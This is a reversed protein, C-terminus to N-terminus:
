ARPHTKNYVTRAQSTSIRTYIQTTSLSEHGLLSQIMRLDAGHDLLHTAFSHRFTHISVKCHIAGKKTYQELLYTIGRRTLRKGRQNLLLAKEEPSKLLQPRGSILYDELAAQSAKSMPVMREKNGKGVVRLVATNRQVHDTDLSTLESVRLGSGYLLEFIFSDRKAVPTNEKLLGDLFASVDNEELVKPLVKDKKPIQLALFPNNDLIKEEVLFRYFSRLSSMKRSITTKSLNRQYLFYLFTRAESSDMKDYDLNEAYLWEKYEKVDRLYAHVTHQSRNKEERLVHEYLNMADDLTIM